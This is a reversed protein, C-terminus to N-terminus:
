GMIEMNLQLVTLISVHNYQKFTVGLKIALHFDAPGNHPMM